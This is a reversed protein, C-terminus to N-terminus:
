SLVLIKVDMRGGGTVIEHWSKKVALFRLLKGSLLSGRHLVGHERFVKEETASATGKMAVRTEGQWKEM